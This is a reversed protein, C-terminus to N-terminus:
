GPTTAEWFSVTPILILKGPITETNFPVVLGKMFQQHVHGTSWSLKEYVNDAKHHIFAFAKAAGQKIGHTYFFNSIANLEATANATVAAVVRCNNITITNLRQGNPYASAGSLTGKRKIIPKYDVKWKVPNLYVVNGDPTESGAAGVTASAIAIAYTNAGAIITIAM